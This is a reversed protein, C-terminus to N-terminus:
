LQMRIGVFPEFRRQVLYRQVNEDRGQIREFSYRAQINTWISGFIRYETEFVLGTQDGIESFLSFFGTLGARDIGINIQLRDPSNLYLRLHYESLNQTGYHRRFYYWLEFRRFILLRIETVLDNGGLTESLPIGVLRDQGGNAFYRESEVIRARTNSVPYFSGVYGPMFDRGNYYLVMRVMFRGLDIFNPSELSAGIGLGSGHATYWAFSAFPVLAISGSSLADFSFDINYATVDQDPNGRTGLDTVYNLGLTFTRTKPDATRFLPAIAIRGGTPGNLLINSTFATLKIFPREYMFEAGVTREEWAVFTNYFNVIHGTGLRTRTLPGLRFYVPVRAPPNYRLYDIVRLADYWEDFDPEYFGYIGARFTKSFRGTYSQTSFDLSVNGAARWQAGILSLSGLLDLTRERRWWVVPLEESPDDASGFSQPQGYVEQVTPGGSFLM